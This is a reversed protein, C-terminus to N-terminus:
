SRDTACCSHLNVCLHNVSELMQRDIHRDISRDAALISPSPIFIRAFIIFWPFKEGSAEQARSSIRDVFYDRRTQRTFDRTVDTRRCPVSSERKTKRVDHKIKSDLTIRKWGSTEMNTNWNGSIGIETIEGRASLDYFICERFNSITNLTFM